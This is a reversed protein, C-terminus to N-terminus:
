ICDRSIKSFDQLIGHFRQLLVKFYKSIKFFSVFALFTFELGVLLRDRHAFLFFYVSAINVHKLFTPYKNPLFILINLTHIFFIQLLDM